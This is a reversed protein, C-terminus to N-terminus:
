KNYENLILEYLDKIEEKDGLKNRALLYDAYSDYYTIDYSDSEAMGLAMFLEACDKLVEDKSVKNEIDYDINSLNDIIYSTDLGYLDDYKDYCLEITKDFKDNFEKEKEKNTANICFASVGVVLGMCIIFGLLRKFKKNLKIKKNM